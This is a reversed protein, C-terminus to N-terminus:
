SDLIYSRSRAITEREASEQFDERMVVVNLQDESGTLKKKHLLEQIQAWSGIRM